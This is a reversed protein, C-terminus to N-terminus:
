CERNQETRSQRTLAESIVIANQKRVQKPSSARDKTLIFPRTYDMDVYEGTTARLRGDSYRYGLSEDAFKIFNENEVLNTFYNKVSDEGTELFRQGFRYSTFQKSESVEVGDPVVGEFGLESIERIDFIVNSYQTAKISPDTFTVYVKGRNSDKNYELLKISKIKDELQMFINYESLTASSITPAEGRTYSRNQSFLQEVVPNTSPTSSNVATDATTVKPRVTFRKQKKLDRGSLLDIAMADAYESVTLKSVQEPNMQSLGLMNAIEKWVDKLWGALGTNSKSEILAVGRRGVLEALIEDVLADGTLTPQTNKVYEITDKIESNEKQLEAQVLDVGRKWLEPRNEQLWTNYLHSFEHIPTDPTANDTNIFVENSGTVAGKTAESASRQLQIEKTSFKNNFNKTLELIQQINAGSETSNNRNVVPAHNNGGLYSESLREKNLFLLDGNNISRLLRNPNSVSFATVINNETQSVMRGTVKDRYRGVVRDKQLVVVINHGKRNKLPTLIEVRDTRTAGEGTNNYVAIPSHIGRMIQSIDGSTLEHDVNEIIHEQLHEHLVTIPLNPIGVGVLIESPEALYLLPNKVGKFRSENYNKITGKRANGKEVLKKAKYFKNYELIADVSEDAIPTLDSRKIISGEDLQFRVDQSSGLRVMKMNGEEDIVYNIDGAESEYTIISDPNVSTQNGNLDTVTSLQASRPIDETLYLPTEIRVQQDYGLREQVNRAEVEGITSEYLKFGTFSVASNYPLSEIKNLVERNVDNRIWEQLVRGEHTDGLSEINGGRVSDVIRKAQGIYGRANAGGEFGEIGQIYHQIEHILVGGMGQTNTARHISFTGNNVADEYQRLNIYILNDEKSYAMYTNLLDATPKALFVKINRAEPYAAYLEPSDYIDELTFAYGVTGVADNRTMEPLQVTKYQGDMIEYRFQGDAGLEWGTALRVDKTSKGETLMRMAVQLGDIRKTTEEITDLREAGQQGIIQFRTESTEEGYVNTDYVVVNGGETVFANDPRIDDFEMGDKKWTGEEYVFGKDVMAQDLVEKTPHEGTLYNQEVVYEGDTTKGVIKTDTEPFERGLTEMSTVFESENSYMSSADVNYTKYVKDGKRRVVTESGTAFVQGLDEKNILPLQNRLPTNAREGLMRNLQETTVEYVASALGSLKLRDLIVSIPNTTSKEGGFDTQPPTPKLREEAQRILTDLSNKQGRTSQNGRLSDGVRRLTEAYDGISPFGINARQGKYKELGYNKAFIILNKIKELNNNGLDGIYLTKTKTDYSFGDGLGFDNLKNIVIEANENTDFIFSYEIDKGNTDYQAVYVGEQVDPSLAGLLNSFADLQEQTEYEIDVRKSPEKITKGKDQSYWGGASPNNITVKVGTAKAIQQIKEDLQKGYNNKKLGTNVESVSDIENSLAPAIGISARNAEQKLEEVVEKAEKKTTAVIVSQKSNTDEAKPATKRVRKTPKAERTQKAIEKGQEDTIDKNTFEKKKMGYVIADAKDGQFTVFVGDKQRLTVFREDGNEIVSEVGSEQTYEVGDLIISGDETIQVNMAEVRELGMDKLEQLTLDPAFGLDFETNESIFIVRQGDTDLIGEMGQYMFPTGRKVHNALTNESFKTDKYEVSVTESNISESTIVEEAEKYASETAQVEKTVEPTREGVKRMKSLNLVVKPSIFPKADFNIPSEVSSMAGEKAMKSIDPTTQYNDLFQIAELVSDTLSGDTKYVNQDTPSNFYFRASSGRAILDANLDIVKKATNENDMELAEKHPKGSNSAEGKVAVPVAMTQSGFRIVVVPVRGKNKLRQIFDRRINSPETKNKLTLKGNQIYGWDVVSDYTTDSVAVTGDNDLSVNPTGLLVTKIPVEYGVFGGGNEFVTAAEERLINFNEAGYTDELAKLEGLVNGKSDVIYIKVLKVKEEFPLDRISQNYPDSMDVEFRVYDGGKMNYIATESFRPSKQFDSAMPKGDEFMFSYKNNTGHAYKEVRLNSNTEIATIVNTGAKEATLEVAGRNNVKAVIINDSGLVFRVKTGKTNDIESVDVGRKARPSTIDDAVYVGLKGLLGKLTLNHINITSGRKSVQVNTPTQTIEENRTKETEDMSEDLLDSFDAKTVGEGERNTPIQGQNMQILIDSLTVGSESFGEGIAITGFQSMLEKLRAKESPTLSTNSDINEYRGDFSKDGNAKTILNSFEVKLQQSFLAERLKREGDEGSFKERLYPSNEILQQLTNETAESAEAQQEEVELGEKIEEVAEKYNTMNSLFEFINTGLRSDITEIFRKERENYEKKSFIRGILSKKNNLDLEGSLIGSSVEAYEKYARLHDQYGHILDALSESSNLGDNASSINSELDKMVGELAVIDEANMYQVGDEELYYPNSLASLSTLRNAETELRKKETELTNLRDTLTNAEDALLNSDVVSVQKNALNAIEATTEEIQSMVEELGSKVKDFEAKNEETMHAVADFMNLYSNVDLGPLTKALETKLQELVVRSENYSEQGNTMVFAIADKMLNSKTPKQGVIQDGFYYDVFKKNKSYEKALRKYEGIAEKKINNAEEISVGMEESLAQTDLLNLGTVTDDIVDEYMGTNHAHTLQALIAGRRKLADVEPSSTGEETNSDQVRNAYFLSESLNDISYSKNFEALTKAQERMQSIGSSLGRGALMNSGKDGVLGILMGTWVERWGEKTTFTEEFSNAFSEVLSLSDSTYKPNFPAYAYDSIASSLVSQGGEEVIGEMVMPRAWGYIGGAIKQARTAKLVDKGTKDLGIGFLRKKVGRDINKYLGPTKINFAKGLIALNSAGVLLMNGGFVTNAGDYLRQTYELREEYTPMRGNDEYFNSEFSQLGEKLYALSEFSSEWGASTLTFRATNALDGITGGINGATTARGLSSNVVREGIGEATNELARATKKFPNKVLSKIGKKLSARAAMKTGLKAGSVGLSAGGTALAWAGESIVTGVTFSLGGLFDDAWFNATSMAQLFNMDQEEKSKYNPNNYTLKTDLDSLSRSFDNDYVAQISGTNMFEMVGNVTGVTGGLVSTGVKGFFKTWGNAWKDTRSQQEALREVNEEVTRSADFNEFKPTWSGDFLQVHTDAVTVNSFTDSRKGGFLKNMDISKTSDTNTPINVDIPNATRLKFVLSDTTPNGTSDQM